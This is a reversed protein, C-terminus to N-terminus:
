SRGAAKGALELTADAVDSGSSIFSVQLFTGDMDMGILFGGGVAYARPAGLVTVDNPVAM